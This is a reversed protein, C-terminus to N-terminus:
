GMETGGAGSVGLDDMGAEAMRKWFSHLKVQGTLIACQGRFRYVM